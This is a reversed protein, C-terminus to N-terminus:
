KQKELYAQREAICAKQSALVEKIKQSALRDTERLVYPFVSSTLLMM